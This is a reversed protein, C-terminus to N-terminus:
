RLIKIAEIENYINDTQPDVGLRRINYIGVVTVKDGEIIQDSIGHSIVNIYNGHKDALKFYSYIENNNGGEKSDFAIDWVKGEVEVGARDYITPMVLLSDIRLKKTPLSTSPDSWNRACSIYMPSVIFSILLIIITKNM